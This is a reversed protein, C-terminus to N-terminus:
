RVSVSFGSQQGCLAASGHYFLTGAAGSGSGPLIIELLGEGHELERVFGQPFREAALTEKM